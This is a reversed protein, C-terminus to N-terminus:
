VGSDASLDSARNIGPEAKLGILHQIAAEFAYFPSCECFIVKAVLIFIPKKVKDKSVRAQHIAGKV